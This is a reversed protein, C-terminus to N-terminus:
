VMKLWEAISRPQSPRMSYGGEKRDKKLDFETFSVVSLNNLVYWIEGYRDVRSKMTEYSELGLFMSGYWVTSGKCDVQITNNVIIDPFSNSEGRENLWYFQVGLTDFQQATVLELKYGDLYCSGPGYDDLTLLEGVPM